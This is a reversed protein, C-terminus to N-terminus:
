EIICDNEVHIYYGKDSKLTDLTSLPNNHEYFKEFDKIMILENPLEELNYQVPHFGILNWGKKVYINHNTTDSYSGEFSISTPTNIYIIYGEDISVTDLSQLEETHNKKYFGEDNKIISYDVSSFISAIHADTPEISFSILNWGQELSLTQQTTSQSCYTSWDPMEDLTIAYDSNFMDTWLSVDNYESSRTFDGYWPMYWSWAAGDEVLSTPSPFSGCESLSIMKTGDYVNNTNNFEMIQSSHDGDKYIDRGIIDVYEDGPYWDPSEGGQHTWVWILNNLGHYNVLRDYMVLWLEKCAEAGQAGWWFWGGSAEHLPRWIIPVGQEQLYLFEQAVFDIDDIMAAYEPSNPEFIKNVNFNTEDTYFAETNRSPDRWHWCMVPIGNKNYWAEADNRPTHDDYWTYGRDSQMFDIGLVVPEKGVNELLWDSEDMSELTMVGTLIHKGYNDLLFNYLCSTEPTPSPANLTQTINFRSSADVERMEIYDVHIWGWNPTIEITHSGAALNVFSSVKLETYETNEELSFTVSNGNIVFNQEKYGNPAAVSLYFDYYASHETTFAISISGEQTAVYQGNSCSADSVTTAGGSLTGSEAEFRTTQAQSFFQLILIIVTTLFFQKM